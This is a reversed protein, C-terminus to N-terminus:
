LSPPGHPHVRVREPGDPTRATVFLVLMLLGLGLLRDFHMWPSDSSVRGGLKWALGPIDVIMVAAWLLTFPLVWRAEIRPVRAMACGAFLPALLVLDYVNHFVFVLTWSCGLLLAEPSSIVPDKRFARRAIAVTFITLISAYIAFAAVHSSVLYRILPRLEVNGETAVPGDFMRVLVSMFDSVVVIPSERMWASVLITAIGVTLAAVTVEKFKRRLLLWVVFAVGVHPKMCAAGVLVGTTVVRRPDLQVAIMGFTMALATLQGNGLGVRVSNWMLVCSVILAYNLPSPRPWIRVSSVAVFVLFACQLVAWLAAAQPPAVLSLPAAILLAHPPYDADSTPGHYPSVGGLAQRSWSLVLGLDQSQDARMAILVGAYLNAAALATMALALFWVHINSPLVLIPRAIEAAQDRAPSTTKM